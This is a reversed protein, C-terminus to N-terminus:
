GEMSISGYSVRTQHAAIERCSHAKSSSNHKSSMVVEWMWGEQTFWCMQM